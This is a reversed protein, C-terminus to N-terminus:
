LPLSDGFARHWARLELKLTDGRCKDFHIVPNKRAVNRHSVSFGERLGFVVVNWVLITSQVIKDKVKHFIPTKVIRKFFLLHNGVPVGQWEPGKTNPINPIKRHKPLDKVDGSIMLFDCKQSFISDWLGERPKSLLTRPQFQMHQKVFGGLFAMIVLYSPPPGHFLNFVGQIVLSQVGM